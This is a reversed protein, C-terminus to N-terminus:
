GGASGVRGSARIKHELMDGYRRLAGATERVRSKGLRFAPVSTSLAATTLGDAGHIPVAVCRLGVLSEEDDVAYGDRRVKKLHEFLEGVDSITNPTLAELPGPGLREKLEDLTLDSLLCKGLASVHALERGGVASIIRIRSPQPSDARAVWVVHQGDLVAVHTAEQLEAAAEEAVKQAEDIFSVRSTYAAGAKFLRFGPAIQVNGDGGDVEEVFGHHVLTHVLEYTTSLPIELRGAIVGVALPEEAEILLGILRCGRDLARVLRM